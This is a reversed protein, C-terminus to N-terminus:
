DLVEAFWGANERFYDMKLVRREKLSNPDFSPKQGIGAAFAHIIAQAGSYSTAKLRTDVGHATLTIEIKM